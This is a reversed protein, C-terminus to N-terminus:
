KLRKIENNIKELESLKDSLNNKNVRSWEEAEKIAQETEKKLTELRRLEVEKYKDEIGRIDFNLGEFLNEVIMDTIQRYKIGHDEVIKTELTFTVLNTWYHNDESHWMEDKPIDTVYNIHLYGKDNDECDKYYDAKVGDMIKNLEKSFSSVPEGISMKQIKKILDRLKKM